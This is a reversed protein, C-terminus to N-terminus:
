RSIPNGAARMVSMCTQGINVPGTGWTPPGIRGGPASVTSIMISGAARAVAALVVAKPVCWGYGQQLATSARMGADSLDIRYPDYRLRDRVARYLAVARERPTSGLAHDRAFAQVLPHDRDVLPTAALHTGAPFPADPPPM